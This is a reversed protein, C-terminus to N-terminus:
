SPEALIRTPGGLHGMGLLIKDMDKTELGAKFIRLVDEITRPTVAVKVLEDGARLLSRLRGTLDEDVGTMNHYSRIIRTGCTRAAEELNPVHLYDEFDVYAFNAYNQMQDEGASTLGTSFLSIRSGEGGSFNGGDADRRITLIVPIGALHLFRRILLREDPELCDVRLEAWDAYKQYKKLTELNKELTKGTLCLCISAM